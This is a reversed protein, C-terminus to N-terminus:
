WFRPKAVMLFVIVVVIGTTLIGMRFSRAATARYEPSAPGASEALAVQRRLLPAYAFIGLLATAVYLILAVILWPLALPLRGVWLMLLGTILLVGYSPNAMRRDLWQIGRLAFGLAKEERAALALWVGYTINSGLATVAALIHLWKLLLYVM